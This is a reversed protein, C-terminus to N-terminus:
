KLIFAFLDKIQQENLPELLREPMISVQQVEMTQIDNRSLFEGKGGLPPVLYKTEGEDNELKGWITRGDKTRVEM